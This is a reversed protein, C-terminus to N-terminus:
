KAEKYRKEVEALELQKEALEAAQRAYDKRKRDIYGRIGEAQKKVVKEMAKQGIVGTDEGKEVARAIEKQAEEVARGAEADGMLTRMELMELGMMGVVGPQSSGMFEAQKMNKMRALLNDRDADHDLQLLEIEVRLKVVEARLKAKGSVQDKPQEGNQQALTIGVIGLGLVVAASIIRIRM